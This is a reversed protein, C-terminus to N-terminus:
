GKEIADSGDGRTKEAIINEGAIGDGFCLVGFLVGLFGGLIFTM